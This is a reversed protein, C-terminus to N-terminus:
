RHETKVFVLSARVCICTLLYNTETSAVPPTHLLVICSEHNSRRKTFADGSPRVVLVPPNRTKDLLMKDRANQATSLTTSPHDIEQKVSLSPPERIMQKDKCTTSAPHVSERDIILDRACPLCLLAFYRQNMNRHPTAEGPLRVKKFGQLSQLCIAAGTQTPVSPAPQPQM